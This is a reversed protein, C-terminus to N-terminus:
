KPYVKKILLIKMFFNQPSDYDHISIKILSPNVTFKLKLKSHEHEIIYEREQKTIIYSIPGPEM